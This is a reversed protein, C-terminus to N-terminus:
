VIHKSWTLKIQPRNKLFHNTKNREIIFTDDNKLM